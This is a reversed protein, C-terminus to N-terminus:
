VGLHEIDLAEGTAGTTFSRGALAPAVPSEPETGPNPLAGPPPFSLASWYEQRPFGM